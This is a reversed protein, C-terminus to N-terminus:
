ICTWIKFFLSFMFSFFFLRKFFGKYEDSFSKKKLRPSNVNSPKRKVAQFLKVPGNNTDDGRCIGCTCSIAHLTIYRDEILKQLHQGHFRISRKWDKCSARGSLTEFEIPTYWRDEVKISKGKSGSGFKIRHLEGVNDRCRVTLVDANAASEWTQGNYLESNLKEAKVKGSIQGNNATIANVTGNGSTSSGPTDLAPYEDLEYNARAAAHLIASNRIAESQEFEANASLTTVNRKALIEVGNIAFTQINQLANAPANAIANSDIEDLTKPLNILASPAKSTYSPRRTTASTSTPSIADTSGANGDTPSPNSICTVVPSKVENSTSTIVSPSNCSEDVSTNEVKLSENRNTENENVFVDDEGHDDSKCHDTKIVLKETLKPPAEDSIITFNVTSGNNETTCSM